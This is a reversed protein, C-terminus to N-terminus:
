QLEEEVVKGSDETNMPHKIFEAALIRRYSPIGKEDFMKMVKGDFNDWYLPVFFGCDFSFRCGFFSILM